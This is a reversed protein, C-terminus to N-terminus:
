KVRQIIHIGFQSKVVGVENVNLRLSLQKFPEVLAAKEEVPYSSGSQASGPDESFEKMLPEIKEGKKLRAVLEKVQKELAARDRKQGRPDDGGGAQDKWGLLIHKVEATKTVPERKLIDASDLADPKEPAPPPPPPPPEVRKIVHWGFPSKVMGVEGMKLRLSMDKFPEVMPADPAVPYVRGDDKSGPDESYQKMLAKFDEGAKAKGLVEQAMKDAEAKDRNKAKEDVRGAKAAPTDKWGILVHQVHVMGPEATRALIDASELPDLPPAAVREMIHYGYKSKVIGVEKEKLRLALQKFEPVFQTDAKVQYPEGSASGPDESHTKVLEDIKDPSAKLQKEIDRALKVAEENSRNTARPDMRGQYVKDLDKWAILVHKVWVNTAAEKRGLIDKSDIDIADGTKSSSSTNAVGDLKSKNQECAVAAGLLLLALLVNRM